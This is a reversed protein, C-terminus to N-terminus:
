KLGNLEFQTVWSKFINVYLIFQKVTKKQWPQFLLYKALFTIIANIIKWFLLYFYKM